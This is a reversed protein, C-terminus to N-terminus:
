VDGGVVFTGSGSNTYFVDNVLDYLGAVSDSKRYCPVFERLLTTNDVDYIEMAYLKAKIYSSASGGNYMFVYPHKTKTKDYGHSGANYTAILTGANKVTVVGSSDCRRDLSYVINTSLSDGVSAGNYSTIPSGSSVFMNYPLENDGYLTGSLEDLSVRASVGYRYSKGDLGPNIYQTGTSQLYVVEQYDSPAGLVCSKTQGNSTITVSKSKTGANNTISVTWTGANPVVCAWIGSTDPATLTAVGDTATCTSGAPYTVHITAAFFTIATSYDATITVTKQATQEGDTITVTWAGTSLGKFVAVGDASAVKTKSKGDKSVTVTCGTPANVTLSAGAGGSGGFGYLPITTQM